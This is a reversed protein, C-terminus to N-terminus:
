IHEDFTYRFFMVSDDANEFYASVPEFGYDLYLHKAAKMIPLTELVVTKYGMEKAGLMAADFIDRGMGHGRYTEKVFLRKFEAETDPKDIRPRIASCAVVENNESLALFVAGKPASYRGPLSALEEEFGDFCIDTNLWAQYDRFLNRVINMHQQQAQIIKM